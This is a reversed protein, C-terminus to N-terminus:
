KQDEFLAYYEPSGIEVGHRQKFRQRNADAAAIIKDRDENTAAKLTGSAVHYFPMDICYAAIGLRHMKLHAEADEAYGGTYSEDFGGLLEFCERRIVYCSFDPHNRKGEPSPTRPEGMQPKDSVGVGTVFMGGDAALHRYTDTRLEVDSNVVLAYDCGHDFIWRLGKNWSAAVSLPKQQHWYIVNAPQTAAWQLTGDESANDILLVTVDGIDQALFTPMAARTYRIGNRVPVLIFNM